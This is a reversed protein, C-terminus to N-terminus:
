LIVGPKETSASGMNSLEKLVEAFLEYLEKLRDIDKIVGVVQFYLEDARGPFHAKFFGEDDKIELNIHPQNQILARISENAFLLKVKKENNSKIIFDEDFEEYGINIDEMGLMKGLGSFIGTRYIQVLAMVLIPCWLAGAIGGIQIGAYIFIIVQFVTLASKTKPLKSKILYRVGRIVAWVALLGIGKPGRGALICVIGWPILVTGTGLAPIFDVITIFVAILLMYNQKLLAFGIVMMGFALLSLFLLQKIYGGM